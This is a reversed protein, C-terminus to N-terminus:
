RAAAKWKQMLALVSSLRGGCANLWEPARQPDVSIWFTDTGARGRHQPTHGIVHAALASKSILWAHADFPSIGLCFVFEYDQNRIQQFKYSGSKELLALSVKVRRNQVILEAQKDQSHVVDLNRMASWGAVLRVGIEEKQRVPRLRIWAFPSDIWLDPVQPDQRDLQLLVGITSLWRVEKDARAQIHRDVTIKM